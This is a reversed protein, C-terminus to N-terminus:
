YQALSGDIKAKRVALRFLIISLPLMIISFLGLALVSESLARISYGKLMALRMGELAHTIPLVYSIKQLWQPLVSVPYYVGGLLWSVNIVLWDVPNGRKAIMIFVASLIGLSGFSIITLVFILCGAPLNANSFDVGFAAAGISLYLIVHISALFFSYLSSSVIITPIETQTVLVAELTGMMQAERVSKSLSTLAVNLYSSFGFGIIVFAFYDGGYKSLAPLPKSGLIQSLFFLTLISFLIKAIQSIFEFRYSLATTFDRQIFALPKRIAFILGNM